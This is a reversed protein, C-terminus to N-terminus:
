LINCLLVAIISTVVIDKCTSLILNFRNGLSHVDVNLTNLHNCLNCLNHHCCNLTFFILKSFFLKKGIQRERACKSLCSCVSSTARLFLRYAPGNKYEWLNNILQSMRIIVFQSHFDYKTTKFRSNNKKIKQINFSLEFNAM